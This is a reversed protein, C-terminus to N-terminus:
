NVIFHVLTSLHLVLATLQSQSGIASLDLLSMSAVLLATSAILEHVFALCRFNGRELWGYGTDTKGRKFVGRCASNRKEKKEEFLPFMSGECNHQCIKLSNQLFTNLKRKIAKRIKGRGGVIPM